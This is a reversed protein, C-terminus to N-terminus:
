PVCPYRHLVRGSQGDPDESVSVLATGDTAYALAEGQPESFPGLTILRPTVSGIGALDNAASLTYEFVGTYVRLALRAGSRHLDAATILRGTSGVAVGPAELTAVVTALVSGSDDPTYPAFLGFVRVSPANKKEFLYIAQGDAVVVLAEVDTPGDPYRFVITDVADLVLPGDAMEELLPEPFVVVEVTERAAANDGTDAVYVCADSQDPCAAVAIDEFDRGQVPLQVEGLAAADLEGVAFVRASDGSDNHAWLMGPNLASPALGSTEVLAPEQLAGVDVPPAQYRTPCFPRTPMVFLAGGDDSGADGEGGGDAGSGADADFGGDAAGADHGGDIDAGGDAGGDLGTRGDLDADPEGGPPAAACAWLPLLALLSCLRRM